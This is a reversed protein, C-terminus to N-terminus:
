KVRKKANRAKQTTKQPAPLPEFLMFDIGIIDSETPLPLEAEIAHAECAFSAISPAAPAANNRAIASSESLLLHAGVVWCAAM